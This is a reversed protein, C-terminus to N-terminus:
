IPTTLQESVAVGVEKSSVAVHAIWQDSGNFPYLGKSHAWHTVIWAGTRNATDVM